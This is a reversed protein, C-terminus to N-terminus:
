MLFFHPWSTTCFFWLFSRKSVTTLVKVTWLSDRTTLSYTPVENVCSHVQHLREIMLVYTGSIARSCFAPWKQKNVSTVDRSAQRSIRTNLNWFPPVRSFSAAEAWTQDVAFYSVILHERLHTDPRQSISLQIKLHM